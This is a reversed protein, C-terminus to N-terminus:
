APVRKSCMARATHQAAHTHCGAGQNHAHANSKWAHMCAHVRMRREHKCDRKCAHMCM